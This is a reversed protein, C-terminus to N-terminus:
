LLFDNEFDLAMKKDKWFKLLLNENNSIFRMINDMDTDTIFKTYDGYINKSEIEVYFMNTPTSPINNNPYWFKIKPIQKTNGPQMILMWVCKSLRHQKPSIYESDSIFKSNDKKQKIVYKLMM